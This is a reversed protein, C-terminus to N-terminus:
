MVTFIFAWTLAMLSTLSVIHAIRSVIVVRESHTM